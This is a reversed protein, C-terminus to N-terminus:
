KRTVRRAPHAEAAHVQGPVHTHRVVQGAIKHSGDAVAGTGISAHAERVREQVAAAALTAALRRKTEQFVSETGIAQARAQAQEAAKARTITDQRAKAEAQVKLRAAQEAKARTADIANQTPTVAHAAGALVLAASACAVRLRILTM